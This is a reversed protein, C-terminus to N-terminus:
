GPCEVWSCLGTRCTPPYKKMQSTTAVNRGLCDVTLRCNVFWLNTARGDREFAFAEQHSLSDFCITAGFRKAQGLLAALYSSLVEFRLFM